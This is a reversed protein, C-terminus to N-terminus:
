DLEDFFEGAVLQHAPLHHVDFHAVFRAAVALMAATLAPAALAAAPPTVCFMAAMAWRIAFIVVLDCGDLRRAFGGRDFGARGAGGDGIGRRRPTLLLMALVLRGGFFRMVALRTVVPMAFLRMLFLLAMLAPAFFVAALVMVIFFRAPGFRHVFALKGGEQEAGWRDLLRFGSVPM